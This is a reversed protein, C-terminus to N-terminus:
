ETLSSLLVYKKGSSHILNKSEILFTLPKTSTYNFNMDSSFTAKKQFMYVRIGNQQDEAYNMGRLTLQPFCSFQLIILVYAGLLFGIKLGANLSDQHLHQSIRRYYLIVAFLIALWIYNAYWYGPQSKLYSPFGYSLNAYFNSANKLLTSSRELVHHTTAQYAALPDYILYALIAISICM